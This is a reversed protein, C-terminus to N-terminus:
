NRVDHQSEPQGRFLGRGDHLVRSAHGHVPDRRMLAGGCAEVLAQHGLCVGLMPRVGIAARAVEVFVGAESPRGPGPSLVLHTAPHALVDEVGVRDCYVVQVDSGLVEFAQVLNYTFSDYADVLLVSPM